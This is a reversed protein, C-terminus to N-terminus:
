NSYCNDPLSTFDFRNTSVKARNKVQAKKLLHCTCVVPPCTHKIHRFCNDIKKCTPCPHDHCELCTVLHATFLNPFIQFVKRFLLLERENKRGKKETRNKETEMKKRKKDRWLRKRWFNTLLFGFGSKQLRNTMLLCCMIYVVTHPNIDYLCLLM